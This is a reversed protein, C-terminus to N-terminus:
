YYLANTIASVNSLTFYKFFAFNQVYFVKDNYVTASSFKM